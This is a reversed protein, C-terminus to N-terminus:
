SFSLPLLNGCELVLSLLAMALFSLFTVRRVANFRMPNKPAPDSAAPGFSDPPSPGLGAESGEM